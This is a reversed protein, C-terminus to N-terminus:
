AKAAREIKRWADTRAGFKREVKEQLATFRELQKSAVGLTKLIGVVMKIDGDRRRYWTFARVLWKVAKVAIAKLVM